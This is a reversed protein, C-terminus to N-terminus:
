NKSASSGNRLNVNRSHVLSKIGIFLTLVEACVTLLIISIGTLSSDNVLVLYFVVAYVLLGLSGLAVLIIGLTFRHTPKYYYLIAGVILIAFPAGFISYAVIRFLFDLLSVM